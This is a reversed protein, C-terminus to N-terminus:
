DKWLTENKDAQCLTLRNELEKVKKLLYIIDCLSNFVKSDCMVIASMSAKDHRNKIAAASFDKVSSLPSDKKFGM